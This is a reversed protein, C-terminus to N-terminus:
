HWSANKSTVWVKDQKKNQKGYLYIITQVYLELVERFDRKKIEFPSLGPYQQALFM